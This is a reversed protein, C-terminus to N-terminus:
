YKYVFDDLIAQGLVVTIWYVLAFHIETYNSNDAFSPLLSTFSFM